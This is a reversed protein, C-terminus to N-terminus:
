ALSLGRVSPRLAGEISLVNAGFPCGLQNAASVELHFDTFSYGGPTIADNWKAILQATTFPYDIGTSANLYGAVLDRAAKRVPDSGGGTGVLDLMTLGNTASGPDPFFSEFLDTTKFPNTTGNNIVSLWQPDNPFTNWLTVGLGGQWFGPTCGERPPTKCTASATDTVTVGLATGTATVTDTSPSTSPVYSGSYTASAGPALDDAVTDGDQDTLGVLTLAGAKDDSATVNLIAATGTNTVTGSFTITNGDTCTKTVDISCTFVNVTASATDTATVGLSTGGPTAALGSATVTNTKTGALTVTRSATASAGPALDDAVTDGDVDTLGVLTLTVDDLLSATGNDDVATVNLLAATGTNTVVYSYTISADTACVNTRSATKTVDITCTFVNVTASATDTATVGLSTGGPTAALGSATVTNTKTGALTV